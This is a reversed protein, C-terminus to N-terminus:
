RYIKNGPTVLINGVITDQRELTSALSPEFIKEVGGCLVIRLLTQATCMLNEMKRHEWEFHIRHHEINAGNAMQIKPDIMNPEGTLNDIMGSSDTTLFGTALLQLCRVFAEGLGLISRVASAPDKEMQEEFDVQHELTDALMPVENIAYYALLEITRRNLGQNLSEFRLCLDKLMIILMRTRMDVIKEKFWKVHEVAANASKLVEKSMHLNTDVGVNLKHKQCGIMIRVNAEENNVEFGAGEIFEIQLPTSTNEDSLYVNQGSEVDYRFLQVSNLRNYQILFHESLRRIAEQTPKVKMIVACDATLNPMMVTRKAFSGVEAYACIPLTGSRALPTDLLAEFARSIKAQLQKVQARQEVSPTIKRFRALLCKEIVQFKSTNEKFKRGGIHLKPVTVSNYCLIPDFTMYTLKHKDLKPMKPLDASFGDVSTELMIKGHIQDLIDKNLHMKRKTRKRPEAEDEIKQEANQRTEADWESEVPKVETLEDDSLIEEVVDWTQGSPLTTPVGDSTTPMLGDGRHRDEDPVSSKQQNPTPQQQQSAAKFRNLGGAAFGPRVFNPRPAMGRIGAPRNMFNPRPARAGPAQFRQWPQM